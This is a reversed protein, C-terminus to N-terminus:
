VHGDLFGKQPFFSEPYPTWPVCKPLVDRGTRADPSGWGLLRVFELIWAAEAEAGNPGPKRHM